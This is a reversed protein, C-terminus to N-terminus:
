LRTHTADLFEQKVMLDAAEAASGGETYLDLIVQPVPAYELHMLGPPGPQREDVVADDGTFLRFNTGGLQGGLDIIAQRAKPLRDLRVYTDLRRPFLHGHSRNEAYYTTVANPIGQENLQSAMLQPDKAQFGNIKLPTRHPKWWEFIAAPDTVHLPHARDVWGHAAFEDLVEYVWSFAVGTAYALQIRPSDRRLALRDPAARGFRRPHHSQRSHRNIDLLFRLIRDRSTSAAPM